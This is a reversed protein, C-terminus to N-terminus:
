AAYGILNMTPTTAHERKTLWRVELGFLRNSPRESQMIIGASAKNITQSLEDDTVGHLAVDNFITEIQKRNAILDDPASLTLSGPVATPSSM